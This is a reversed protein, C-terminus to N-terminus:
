SRSGVQCYILNNMRLFPIKFYLNKLIFSVPSVDASAASKSVNCPRFSSGSVRSDLQLINTLPNIPGM